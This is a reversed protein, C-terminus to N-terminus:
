YDYVHEVKFSRDVLCSLLSPLDSVSTRIAARESAPDTLVDSAFLLEGGKLDFNWARPVIATV